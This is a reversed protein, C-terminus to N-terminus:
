PQQYKQQYKRWLRKHRDNLEIQRGQIYAEEISCNVDLPDGSCVFLTADKGVELSGVRNGIGLIQAPYVTIAKLAEDLPLGFGAATAAHYPLNRVGTGSFLGGSALCYTVGAQRLRNPLSYAADYADDPRLPLRYTGAVIVPIQHEKLLEACDAADYGGHIILRVQQEVAFGVAAQIESLSDASVMLPTRGQLVPQMAELRLDVPNLEADAERASQYNRALAFYERLSKLSAERGRRSPWQIHMAVESQLVLDETTWGDLQLVASRGAILSGTPASLVLLVGNARTVPILESDPNVAVWSKVNPNFLGGERYDITARVSEIEVLGLQTYADILAPYVHKGSVQIAQTGEPLVVEQGISTITGGEFLITGGEITAGSVTHITGGVLAIPHKQPPAPVEDSAQATGLLCCALSMALLLGIARFPLQDQSRILSNM